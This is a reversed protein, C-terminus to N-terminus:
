HMTSYSNFAEVLLIILAETKTRLEEDLVPAAAFSQHAIRHRLEAIKGIADAKFTDIKEQGAEAPLSRNLCIQAFAVTGYYTAARAGFQHNVNWGLKDSCMARLELLSGGFDLASKLSAIGKLPFFFELLQYLGLYLYESKRSTIAFYLQDFLWQHSDTPLSLALEALLNAFNRSASRFDSANILARTYIVNASDGSFESSPAIAWGVVNPLYPELDAEFIADKNNVADTVIRSPIPVCAPIKADIIFELRQLFTPEFSEFVFPINQDINIPLGDAHCMLLSRIGCDDILRLRYQDAVTDSLTKTGLFKALLEKEIEAYAPDTKAIPVIWFHKTDIGSLADRDSANEAIWPFLRARFFSVINKSM